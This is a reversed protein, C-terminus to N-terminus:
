HGRRRMEFKQSEESNKMAVTPVSDTSSTSKLHHLRRRIRELLRSEYKDETSEWGNLVDNWFNEEENTSMDSSIQDIIFDSKKDSLYFLLRIRRSSSFNPSIRLFSAM